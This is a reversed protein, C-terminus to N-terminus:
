EMCSVSLEKNERAQITVQYRAEATIEAVDDGSLDYYSVLNIMLPLGKEKSLMKTRDKELLANCEDSTVKPFPAEYLASIFIRNEKDARFKTYVERPEGKKEDDKKDFDKVALYLMNLNNVLLQFHNVEDRELTDSISRAQVLSASFILAVAILIKM